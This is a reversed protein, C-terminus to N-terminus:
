AASMRGKGALQANSAIVITRGSADAGIGSWTTITQVPLEVGDRGRIRIDARGASGTKKDKRLLKVFEPRMIDDIRVGKASEPLGILERLWNNAYTITGDPKAAFFGMPADEVYLSKLDAAGTAEQEGAIRRLRWLM